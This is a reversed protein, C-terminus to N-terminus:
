VHRAWFRAVDIAASNASMLDEVNCFAPSLPCVCLHATTQVVGCDCLVDGETFGWRRRNDKSRAVGSRLRNLARWTRWDQDGGPPLSEKPEVFNPPVADRWLNLRAYEPITELCLVTQSFSKRSKLRRKARERGYLLHRPEKYAKSMEKSSIVQRRIQPPAIGALPYLKTVPTSKLCGTVIRVTDNLAVDVKKTHASREWVEAAYEAASFSLALASTRLVKPQAGWQTNVLKRLLNNRTKVKDKVNNCHPKYTLSRDLTVGLYKPSLSM